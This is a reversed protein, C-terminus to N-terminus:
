LIQPEDIVMNKTSGEAYEVPHVYLEPILYSDYEGGGIVDECYQEVVDADVNYYEKMLRADNIIAKDEGDFAKELFTMHGFIVTLKKHISM